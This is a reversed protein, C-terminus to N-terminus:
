SAGARRWRQEERFQTLVEFHFRVRGRRWEEAANGRIKMAAGFGEPAEDTGPNMVPRVSTLPRPPRLAHRRDSV